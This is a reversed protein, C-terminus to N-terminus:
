LPSRITGRFLSRLASGAWERPCRIPGLGLKPPSPALLWHSRGRGWLPLHAGSLCSRRCDPLALATTTGPTPTDPASMHTPLLSTQKTTVQWHGPAPATNSSYSIPAPARTHTPTLCAHACTHACTHAPGHKGSSAAPQSGLLPTRLPPDLWGKSTRDEMSLHKKGM